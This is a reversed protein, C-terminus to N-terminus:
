KAPSSAPVASAPIEAAPVDDGAKRGVREVKPDAWSGSVQFERTGAETLPKKLIAQALFAGLGVAPNIVAYALAATGANIEPVVVVRLDQTEHEVDASGEMLVLAQVGRMRLNNTQAVGQTIKVDGTINDFAFGELFLDRFDLSLRRPLSQLSLVGLLRAAGPEAKLFQGADIAVNVQGSLSAYDLAFPSGLWAVQGSLQGKGGRIAKSTGLRDLLAGSDSVTLKFDLVARRPVPMGRAAPVGTASWHGTGILQAEPTLINFKSLQWDRGPGALRNVAEIEVRGLKKGRLEFDDVVVDLAPLSAPQQDLLSEVQEVDSKPLSLRSLRAYVRGGATAAAGRRTPLRYEVYGNLQDADVNARWVGADQSLGASVRTLRRQGVTLEQVRLAIADPTYVSSSAAADRSEPPGFLRDAAAEWEDTALTKLNISAAVGSAPQPAPEMVGIGGRLVRAADASLDRSYQAQVVNGLEFRLVDRTAAGATISQPDITTQLRMALPTEAAKNLPAPLNIGLGVLNSSINLEAQGHLFGLSARYSTQGTLAGAARALSGLETSRRLGEAGLSGQGNFRVAGDPQLGGDFTADGGYVKASAGVVAFTKQSFDVRGKAGALLPSGPSIRVDNAALTVNGKATTSDVHMLPINLDLKLDANGTATTTELAHGIWGGVPTTNVIRLMEGLPGHATSELSLTADHELNRIAGQVKNWEVSGAQARGNRLTLTGRDLIV